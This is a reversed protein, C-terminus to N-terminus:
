IINRFMFPARITAVHEDPCEVGKSQWFIAGVLGRLRKDVETEVVNLVIGKISTLRWRCKGAIRSVPGPRSGIALLGCYSLFCFFVVLFM